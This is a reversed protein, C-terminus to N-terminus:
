PVASRNAARAPLREGPARGKALQDAGRREVALRKMLADLCVGLFVVLWFWKTYTASVFFIAVAFAALGAQFGDALLFVFQAGVARARSRVRGLGRFASYLVGVFLALGPLGLEAAVELYTNHAVFAKRGELGVYSGVHLKFNGAGIGTLPHAQIMRIAGRWVTTRNDTSEEDGRSPNLIRTLPSSPAIALMVAVVLAAGVTVRLNRRSSRAAVILLATALGLFGGRSAALTTAFLTLTLSSLALWWQWRPERLQLMRYMVPLILLASVTFYNGDLFMWGPRYGSAWGGYKQWERIMHASGYLMSILMTVAVWRAKAVSDVLILTVVFLIGFSLYSMLPSVEYSQAEGLALYSTMGLPVLLAVFRAPWTAFLRVSTTRQLLYLAAWLCCAIGVYKTATLEGVFESWFPHRAFPATGVLLYYLYM